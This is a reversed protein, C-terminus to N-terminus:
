LCILFTVQLLVEIVLQLLKLGFLCAALVERQIFYAHKGVSWALEWYELLSGEEAAQGSKTDAIDEGEFPFVKLLIRTTSPAEVDACLLGVGFREIWDTVFGESEATLRAGALDEFSECPLHDVAVELFPDACGSDGLVDGEVAETVGVSGQENSAAGVDVGYGLHERM